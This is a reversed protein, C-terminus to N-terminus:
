ERLGALPENTLSAARAHNNAKEERSPQSSSSFFFMMYLIQLSYFLLTLLDVCVINRRTCRRCDVRRASIYIYSINMSAPPGLTKERNRCCVSPSNVCACLQTHIDRPRKPPNERKPWVPFIFSYIYTSLAFGLLKKEGRKKKKNRYHLRYNM